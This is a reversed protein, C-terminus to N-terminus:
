TKSSRPKQKRSQQKICEQVMLGQEPKRRAPCPSEVLHIITLVAILGKAISTEPYRCYKQHNKAM